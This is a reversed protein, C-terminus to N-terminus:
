GEIKSLLLRANHEDSKKVSITYFDKINGSRSLGASTKGGFSNMALRLNNNFINTKYKINQEQMLNKALFYKDMESTYYVQIWKELM